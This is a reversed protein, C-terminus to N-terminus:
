AQNYEDDVYNTQFRLNTEDPKKLYYNSIMHETITKVLHDEVHINDNRFNALGSSLAIEYSPFYDVNDYSEMLKQAVIRLVSKSYSNVMIANYSTFTAELPVPSVTLLINKISHKNILEITKSMRDLVDDADMRHFEYRGPNNSILIKSPAKNLYCKGINDYWCETLGLTIIITTSDILEKYLEDIQKRREILRQLSIPKNHIHLFLDVYGEKTHEIGINDTYVFENFVSEIRQFITGANYENLLSSADWQFEGSPLEFRKIPIDFKNEILLREIERAFCSGITFIKENQKLSFRPNLKPLFMGNWFQPEDKTPVRFTRNRIGTKLNIYAEEGSLIKM